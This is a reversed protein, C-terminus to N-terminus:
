KGRARELEELWKQARTKLKADESDRLVEEWDLRARTLDGQKQAIRGLQALAEHYWPTDPFDRVVMRYGMTAAELHGQKHYLRAGLFRKEALRSRCDVIRERAPAIMPSGPNEDIFRRFYTLAELTEKQDYVAPRMQRFYAEGIKFQAEDLWESAPYTELLKEYEFVASIYDEACFHAEALYYQADAVLSSGPYNNVVVQFSEAAELCRKKELARMGEEFYFEAKKLPPVTSGCSCLFLLSALLALGARPAIDRLRYPM